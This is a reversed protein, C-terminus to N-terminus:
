AAPWSPRWWGLFRGGLRRGASVRRLRGRGGWGFGVRARSSSSSSHSSDPRSVPSGRSWPRGLDQGLVRLESPFIDLRPQRVCCACCTPRATTRWTPACSPAPAMSRTAACSTWGCATPSPAETGGAALAAEAVTDVEDRAPVSFCYLALAHTAPDAMPLKAFQAFREHSLLMVCAQEGVLMCAATEGAAWAQRTFVLKFVTPDRSDRVAM